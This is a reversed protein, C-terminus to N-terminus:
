GIRQAIVGFQSFIRIFREQHKGFYVFVNGHTPRDQGGGPKDFSIRHDVFCITYDWLRQFWKTDTVANVLLVAEDVRGAEYEEILKGSWDEQGSDRGYPPNLFVRGDWEQNLGDEDIAFYNVARVTENAVESSAPDLDIQGLVEQAAQIYRLPTYWENSESSHLIRRSQSGDALKLVSTTTLEEGAGKTEAIHAEFREEPITAIKQWNHAKTPSLNNEKLAAEYGSKPATDPYWRAESPNVREIEKLLEGARREARLKIETVYNQSELGLGAQKSYVRLAEAKDRINKVEDVTKLEALNRTAEELKIISNLENM